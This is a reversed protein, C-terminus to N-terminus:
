PTVEVRVIAARGPGHAYAVEYEGPADFLQEGPTRADTVTEGPPLNSWEMARLGNGFWMSLGMHPQGQFLWHGNHREPDVHSTGQNTAEITLRFTNRAAMSLVAPAAVLRWRIDKADVFHDPGRRPGPQPRVPTLVNEAQMSEAQMSEAQSETQTPETEDSHSVSETPGACSACVIALAWSSFFKM